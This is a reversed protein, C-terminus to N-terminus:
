EPDTGRLLLDLSEIDDWVALERASLAYLEARERLAREDGGVSALLEERRSEAEAVTMVTVTSM